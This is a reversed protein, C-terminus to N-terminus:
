NDTVRSRLAVRAPPSLALAARRATPAHRLALPQALIPPSPSPSLSLSLIRFLYLFPARLIHFIAVTFPRLGYPDKPSSPRTTLIEAEGGGGGGGAGGGEGM